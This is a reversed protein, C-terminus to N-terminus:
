IVLGYVPATEEGLVCKFSFSFSITDVFSKFEIFNLVISLTTSKMTKCAPKWNESLWFFQRSITIPVTKSNTKPSLTM